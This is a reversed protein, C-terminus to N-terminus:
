LTTIPRSQLLLINGERLCWELDQPRGFYDEARLGMELLFNLHEGTLVRASGEEASLGVHRIGNGDPECVVAVTQAAIYERVIVGTERELVYQDPTILGSVIGEGLGFVAEIVVHDRRKMVPDVTFMVGSADASIMEQVVVAMRMDGLDGRNARYFLARPAFLSAWCERVADVVAAAGQVNLFTEQQGAFSAGESDEGIASSRVAVRVGPGMKLYAEAILNEIAPPLPQSRIFEQLRASVSELALDDGPDLGALGNRVLEDGGSNALFDSFAPACVVFGSPVPLGAIKLSSLNAGKGGALSTAGSPLEEFWAVLPSVASALPVPM